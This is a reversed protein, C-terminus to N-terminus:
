EPKTEQIFESWNHVKVINDNYKVRIRSTYDDFCFIAVCKRREPVIFLLLIVFFCTKFFTVSNCFFFQHCVYMVQQRLRHLISTCQVNNYAKDSLLFNLFNHGTWDLFLRIQMINNNSLYRSLTKFKWCSIINALPLKAIGVAHVIVIYHRQTPLKWCKGKM